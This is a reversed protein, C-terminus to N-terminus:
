RFLHETLDRRFILEEFLDEIRLSLIGLQHNGEGFLGVLQRLQDGPSRFNFLRKSFRRARRTVPRMALWVKGHGTKGPDKGSSEAQNSMAALSTFLPTPFVLVEVM